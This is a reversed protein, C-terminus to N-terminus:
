LSFSSSVISVGAAKGDLVFPEDGTFDRILYMWRANRALDVFWESDLTHPPDRFSLDTGLQLFM